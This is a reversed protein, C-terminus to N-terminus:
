LIYWFSFVMHVVESSTSEYATAANNGLSTILYLRVFLLCVHVRVPLGVLCLITCVSTLGQFQKLPKLSFTFEIAANRHNIIYSHVVTQWCRCFQQVRHMFFYYLSMQLGQLLFSQLGSCTTRKRDAFSRSSTMLLCQYFLICIVFPRWMSREHSGCRAYTPKGNGNEM